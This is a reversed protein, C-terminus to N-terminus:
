RALRLRATEDALKSAPPHRNEEELSRIQLLAEVAGGRCIHAAIHIHQYRPGSRFLRSRDQLAGAPPELTANDVLSGATAITCDGTRTGAPEDFAVIATVAREAPVVVIVALAYVGAWAFGQQM